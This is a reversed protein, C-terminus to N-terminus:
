PAISFTNRGARKAVYLAEDARRLLAEGDISDADNVAIGISTTVQRVSDPLTFPTQMAVIIKRAVTASADALSEGELIIVFEDGALRAVTDTARVSKVLRRAFERLVLDGTHHGASDNVSKFHDIDLFMLAMPHGTRRSRAMADALKDDFQNRNPLGTLTDHRALMRLQVQVQKLTTIDNIMGCVGSVRGADDFQPVYAAQYTATLEDRTSDFEFETAQGQLAQAIYPQHLAYDAATMADVVARNDLAEVSFGLWQASRQNNFQFREASDIFSVAAPLNDTVSRLLRESARERRQAQKRATVDLIMSYFGLVSGDVEIDPILDHLFYQEGREFLHQEFSVRQGQLVREIQPAIALYASEGIVQRVSQGLVQDPKLDLATEYYGNCFRYHQTKDVYAILAPMNDTIMRLRMESKAFTHQARKLETIDEGLAIFGVVAGGADREPVYSVREWRVEGNRTVLREFGTSAGRLADRMFPESQAFVNEGLLERASIGEPRDAAAGYASEYRRNAFIVHLEPDVYAVLAPIHQAILQLRQQSSQFRSDALARQTVLTDVATNMQDIQDAQAPGRLAGLAPDTQDSLAPLTELKQQLRQLPATQRLMTRWALWAMVVMIAFTAMLTRDAVTTLQETNL